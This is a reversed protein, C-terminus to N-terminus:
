TDTLAKRLATMERHASRSQAQFLEDIVVVLHHLQEAAHERRDRSLRGPQADGFAFIRELADRSVADIDAARALRTWHEQLAGALDRVPRFNGVRAARMAHQSGRRLAGSCGPPMIRRSWWYGDVEDVIDAVLRRAASTDLAGRRFDREVATLRNSFNAATRATPTGSEPWSEAVRVLGHLLSAHEDSHTGDPTKAM